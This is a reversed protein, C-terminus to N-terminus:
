AELVLELDPIDSFDRPNLTWLAAHQSIACAAIALDIARNRPRNLRRYMEAALAAEAVGFACASRAPVLTEQIDLENDTRPGRWWEYLVITSVGLREGDAVLRRLMSVEPRQGSLAGILASTDLHIM